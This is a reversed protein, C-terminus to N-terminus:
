LFYFILIDIHDKVNFKNALAKYNVSYSLLETLLCNYLHEDTLLSRFKSKILNMIIRMFIDFRFFSEIKGTVKYLFPFKDKDMTNRLNESTISKLLIENKLGLMELEAKKFKSQVFYANSAVM